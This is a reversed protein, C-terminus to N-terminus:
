KPPIKDLQLKAWLRNPDLALSKAFSIRADADQKNRHQALGLWLWAEANNPELELARKFSRIAIDYGGGFSAPLYYNGVGDAIWVEASKPDLQKAKEISDKARRGYGLAGMIPNAPIIQGCLTGLVRYYEGDDGRLAIANEAAKVGDTASKEASIKDKLELAVEAQISLALALRYQTEADKPAKEAASRATSVLTQLAGRDQADRARVLAPDM